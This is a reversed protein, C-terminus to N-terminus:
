NEFSIHKYETQDIINIHYTLIKFIIWEVKINKM